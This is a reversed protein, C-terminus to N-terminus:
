LDDRIEYNKKNLTFNISIACLTLAYGVHRKPMDGLLYAWEVALATVSHSGIKRLCLVQWPSSLRERHLSTLLEM